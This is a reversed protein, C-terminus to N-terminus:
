PRDEERNEFAKLLLVMAEEIVQRHEHDCNDMRQLALRVVEGRVSKEESWLRLQEEDFPCTM